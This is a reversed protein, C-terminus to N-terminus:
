RLRSAFIAVAVGLAMLAALAYLATAAREYTGEKEEAAGARAVPILWGRARKNLAACICLCAFGVLLLFGIM